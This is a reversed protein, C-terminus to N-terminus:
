RSKIFKSEAKALSPSAECQWKLDLRNQHVVVDERYKKETPAQLNTPTCTYQAKQGCGEAEIFREAGQHGPHLDHTVNSVTVAAERCGFDAAASKKVNCLISHCCASVFLCSCAFLTFTVLHSKKM